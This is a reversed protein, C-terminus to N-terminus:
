SMIKPHKTSRLILESCRTSKIENKTQQQSATLAKYSDLFRGEGEESM